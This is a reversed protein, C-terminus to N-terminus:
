IKIKKEQGGLDLKRLPLLWTMMSDEKGLLPSPMVIPIFSLLSAM